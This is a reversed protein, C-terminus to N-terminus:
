KIHFVNGRRGKVSEFKVGAVSRMRSMIARVTHQECGRAEAMEAITVGRKRRLMKAVDAVAPQELYTTDRM